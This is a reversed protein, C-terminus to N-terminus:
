SSCPKRPLMSFLVPRTARRCTRHRFRGCPETRLPAPFPRSPLRIFSRSRTSRSPALGASPSGGSAACDRSLRRWDCQRQVLHSEKGTWLCGARNQTQPVPLHSVSRSFASYATGVSQERKSMLTLNRMTRLTGPRQMLLLSFNFVHPFSRATRNEREAPQALNCPMIFRHVARSSALSTRAKSSIPRSRPPKLTEFTIRKATASYM